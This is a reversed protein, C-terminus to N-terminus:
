LIKADHGRIPTTLIREAPWGRYIRKHLITDPVGLVEAWQSTTKTVGRYTLFHNQRTNSNQERRTAWYCNNPGYGSNNDRREITHQSSPRVGMDALFVDFNEWRDCVFIGRAGYNPYDKCRPNQCRQRMKVWVNFEPTRCMGHRRSTASTREKQLCGCSQTPRAGSLNTALVEVTEGCDCICQWSRYSVGKLIRSGVFGAVALRGFRRGTLDIARM